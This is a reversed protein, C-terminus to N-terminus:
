LRRLARRQDAKKQPGARGGAVPPRPRGAEVRVIPDKRPDFQAASRRFVEIGLPSRVGTALMETRTQIPMWWVNPMGEIAFYSMCNGAHDSPGSGAKRRLNTVGRESGRSHSGAFGDILRNRHIFAARGYQRHQGHPRASRPRVRGVILLQDRTERLAVALTVGAKPDRALDNWARNV